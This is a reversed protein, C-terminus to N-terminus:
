RNHDHWKGWSHRAILLYFTAGFADVATWLWDNADTAVSVVFMCCLATAYPWASGLASPLSRM